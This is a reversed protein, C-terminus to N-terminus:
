KRDSLNWTSTYCARMGGAQGFFPNRADGESQLWLGGEPADNFMGCRYGVLKHELSAPIGTDELFRFMAQSLYGFHVRTSQLDTAIVIGELKERITGLAENMHWFHEDGQPPFEAARALDQKMRGAAARAGDPDDGYLAGQLSLYDEVASELAAFAQKPLAAPKHKKMQPDDRPVAERVEKKKMMKVFSERVRSESDLLFQGSVVVKEGAALGGLVEIKDGDVERGLEVSRPEFRGEGTSVFAVKREGTDIVAERPVLALEDGASGEIEIEAYMGPMLSGDTNDFELRVKAERSQTEMYPYIYSIKGEYRRGGVYPLTMVARQGVAAYPLQFEYLTALVWVRGLDAIRYLQMGPSVRTGENVHKEVVVGSVPSRVTVTKEPVGREPLEDLQDEAFGFLELRKRAAELLAAFGARERDKWLLLYEEQSALLEPSYIELLPQGASVRAGQFDIHIAEVWGSFKLDVDRLRREDFTVAGVTRISLRPQGTTVVALRVGINQLAVPDIAIEGAFREPDVPVLDMGCIPCQGPEPQIIWPHMQSIYWTKQEAAASDAGIAAKDNWPLIMSIEGTVLPGFRAGLFFAAAVFVLFMLVSLPGPGKPPRHNGEFDATDNAEVKEAEENRSM